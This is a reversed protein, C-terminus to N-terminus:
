SIPANTPTPEIDGSCGTEAKMAKLIKTFACLFIFDFVIVHTPCTARM